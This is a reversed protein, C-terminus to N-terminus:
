AAPSIAALRSPQTTAAQGIAAITREAFLARLGERPDSVFLDQSMESEAKTDSM